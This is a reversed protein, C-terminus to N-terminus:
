EGKGSKLAQWRESTIIRQNNKLGLEKYLEREVFQIVREREAQKAEEIKAEYYKQAKSLQSHAVKKHGTRDGIPLIPYGINNLEEDTLLLGEKDEAKDKSM